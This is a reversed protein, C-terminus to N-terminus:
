RGLFEERRAAHSRQWPATYPTTQWDALGEVTGVHEVFASEEGRFSLQLDHLRTFDAPVAGVVGRVFLLDADSRTGAATRGAEYVAEVARFYGANACRGTLAMSAPCELGEGHDRTLGWDDMLLQLGRCDDTECFTFSRRIASLPEEFLGGPDELFSRPLLQADVAIRARCSAGGLDRYFSATSALSFSLGQGAGDCSLEVAREAAFLGARPRERRQAAARAASTASPTHFSSRAFNHHSYATADFLAENALRLARTRKQSAEVLWAGFLVMPILVASALALEIIAQGRARM